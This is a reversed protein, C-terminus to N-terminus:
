QPLLWYIVLRLKTHSNNLGLPQYVNGIGFVALAVVAALLFMDTVGLVPVIDEDCQDGTYGDQCRYCFFNLVKIIYIYKSYKSRCHSKNDTTIDCVSGRKSHYKINRGATHPIIQQSTM